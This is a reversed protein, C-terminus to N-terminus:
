RWWWDVHNWQPFLIKLWVYAALILMMVAFVEEPRIEPEPGLKRPWKMTTDDWICRTAGSVARVAREEGRCRM